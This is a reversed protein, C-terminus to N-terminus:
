RGGRRRVRTEQRQAGRSRRSSQGPRAEFPFLRKWSAARKRAASVRLPNSKLTRMAPPTLESRRIAKKELMSGASNLMSLKSRRGPQNSHLEMESVGTERHMEVCGPLTDAGGTSGRLIEDLLASSLSISCVNYGRIRRVYCIENLIADLPSCRRLRTDVFSAESSFFSQFLVTRHSMKTSSSHCGTLRRPMLLGM